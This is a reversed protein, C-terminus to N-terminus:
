VIVVKVKEKIARICFPILRLGFM